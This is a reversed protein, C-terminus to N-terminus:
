DRDHGAGVLEVLAKDEVDHAPMERAPIEGMPVTVRGM